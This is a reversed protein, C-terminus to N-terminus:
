QLPDFKVPISILYVETQHYIARENFFYKKLQSEDIEALNPSKYRGTSYATREVM